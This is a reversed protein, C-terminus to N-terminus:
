LIKTISYWELINNGTDSDKKVEVFCDIKTEFSQIIKEYSIEERVARSIAELMQERTYKAPNSKYGDNFSQKTFTYEDISLKGKFRDLSKEAYKSALKAREKDEIMKRIDEISTSITPLDPLYSSAIIKNTDEFMNEKIDNDIAKRIQKKYLFSDGEKIEADLNLLLLGEQTEILKYNNM